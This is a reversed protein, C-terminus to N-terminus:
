KCQRTAHEMLSQTKQGNGKINEPVKVGCATVFLLAILL